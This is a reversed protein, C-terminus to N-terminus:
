KPGWRKIPSLIREPIHLVRYINRHIQEPRRDRRITFARGDTTPLRVAVVQHTSLQTRLTEWSTHIGEDLFAREICVLLHYALVCLFIHTEVRRELHHLFDEAQLVALTEQRYRQSQAQGRVDGREEIRRQGPFVNFPKGPNRRQRYEYFSNQTGIISQKGDFV